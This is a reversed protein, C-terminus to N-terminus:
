TGCTGPGHPKKSIKALTSPYKDDRFEKETALFFTFYQHRRIFLFLITEAQIVDQKNSRLKASSSHFGGMGQGGPGRAQGGPGSGTAVQM